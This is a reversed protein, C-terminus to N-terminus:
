ENDIRLNKKSLSQKEMWICNKRELGRKLGRLICNNCYSLDNCEGCIEESPVLLQNYRKVIDKSFINTLNENYINGISFESDFMVCPRVSGDAGITATRHILGCNNIKLTEKQEENLVSIFDSYKTFIDAEYKVFKLYEEPDCFLSANKEGRGFNLVPSYGFLMVGLGKLFLITDEVHFFNEKTVSM